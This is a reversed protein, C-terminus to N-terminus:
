LGPGPVRIWTCTGSLCTPVAQSPLVLHLGYLCSTGSADRHHLRQLQAREEQGRSSPWSGLSHAWESRQPVGERVGVLLLPNTM